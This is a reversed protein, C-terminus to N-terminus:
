NTTEPRARSSLNEERMEQPSPQPQQEHEAEEESAGSTVPELSQGELIDREKHFRNILFTEDPRRFWQFRQVSFRDWPDQSDSYIRWICTLNLEVVNSCHVTGSLTRPSNTM